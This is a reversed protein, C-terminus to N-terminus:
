STSNVANGGGSIGSYQTGELSASNEPIVVDEDDWMMPDPLIDRPTALMQHRVPTPASRQFVEWGPLSTAPDPPPVSGAREKALSDRTKRKLGVLRMGRTKGGM